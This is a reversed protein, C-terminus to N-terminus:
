TRGKRLFSYLAIPDVPNIGDDSDTGLEQPSVDTTPILGDIASELCHERVLIALDDLQGADRAKLFHALAGACLDAIQLQPHQQSDGQELSVARLPFKFKRRDYGLMVSPENGFAMMEEFQRQSALVPKSRDHIVRFRDAKRVGWVAIHQFLSPIAPDTFMHLDQRFDENTSASLMAQGAAYFDNVHQDTRFRMMEVFTSLFRDTNDGGCFAPMCYYLMNSLAINAGRKYLDEGMGHVITESILDVMKTVVMYRKHFATTAIRTKNLRPDTFLRALRRIGDPTKKLTKFKPEGGQSSRVIDLLDSAESRGLDTSALVFIPQEPDLLNQGSNGAEDCYLESM